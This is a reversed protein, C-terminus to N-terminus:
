KTEKEKACLPCEIESVNDDVEVEVEGHKECVIYHVTKTGFHKADEKAFRYTAGESPSAEANYLNGTEDQYELLRERFKTMVRLAFKQGWEDTIDHEDNTFNRISENMGNVGITSFFTTFGDKASTIYRRTYPYLGRLVMEKIFKRKKELTSKALDMLKFLRKYYAKEDGKCLYGIRALNITVVGISGTQSDSGFLGGGRKRLAKKDLQLRCCQHSVIGNSLEVLHEPTDITFNYVFKDGGQVKSVSVVEVGVLQLADKARYPIKDGVSLEQSLKEGIHGDKDYVACRHDRSVTISVIKLPEDSVKISINVFEGNYEKYDIEYVGSVSKWQHEHDLCEIHLGKKFAEYMEKTTLEAKVGSIRTNFRESALFAMSRVDNPSYANEDRITLKGNEDRLYQSGIFNQFYSCGTKATNDWLVDYEQNDWDFDEGINVTPIPFTFPMGFADGESMVEYYAKVIIKMETNFHKYCLSYCIAEDDSEYDNLRKQAEAMMQQWADYIDMLKKDESPINDKRVRWEEGDKMVNMSYKEILEKGKELREKYEEYIEVFFPNNNKMPNRDALDKPCKLDITVNSFPSQGWRSPVNLNYVFNRIAKKIEDYTLGGFHMDFFVLPALFTDFSSFAQAGAWEAQLIGIYNAMQYLAERLHKPAHSGVRGAVGNFGENLLKMLDHGCCNHAIAGNEIAFCHTGEVEMCYVDEREKLPTVSKVWSTSGDYRVVDLLNCHPKGDFGLSNLLIIPKLYKAEVWEFTLFSEYTENNVGWCAVLFKHDPTCRVKGPHSGGFVVEVLEANERTKRLNRAKCTKFHGELNHLKTVISLDCSYGRRVKANEVTNLDYNLDVREGAIDTSYVTFEDVGKDLLEEITIDGFEVTKIKTDKTFCYGSLNDLDHIHYDGNRHADGEAKSYVQDLWYNASIKGFTQNCLSAHSFSTNSNASIRWDSKNVYEEITGKASVKTDRKETTEDDLIKIAM